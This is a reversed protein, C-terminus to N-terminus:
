EEEEDGEEPECEPGDEEEEFDHMDFHIVEPKELMNQIVLAAATTAATHAVSEIVDKLIRVFFQRGSESTLIKIIM